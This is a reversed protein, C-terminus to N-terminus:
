YKFFLRMFCFVVIVLSKENRNSINKRGAFTQYYVDDWCEWEVGVCYYPFEAEGQALAEVNALAVDSIDVSRQSYYVNIGAVLAVVAFMIVASIKKKM